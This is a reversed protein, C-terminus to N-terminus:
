EEEIVEFCWHFVWVAMARIPWVVAVMAPSVLVLVVTIAPIHANVQDQTPYVGGRGSHFIGLGIMVLATLSGVVILGSLLTAFCGRGPAVHRGM